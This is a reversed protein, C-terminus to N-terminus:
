IEKKIDINFFEKREMSDKDEFNCKDKTEVIKFLM